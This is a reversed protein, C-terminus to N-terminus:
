GDGGGCDQCRTDTSSSRPFFADGCEECVRLRKKDQRLKTLRRERALVDIQERRLDILRDLHCPRCLGTSKMMALRRGCMPCIELHPSEKVWLLLRAPVVGLDVEDEGAQLSVGLELAKSSVSGRSRELLQAIGDAGISGFLHLVQLELTTWSRQSVDSM